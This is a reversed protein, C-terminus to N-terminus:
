LWSYRHRGSTLTQNQRKRIFKSIAGLSSACYDVKGRAIFLVVPNMLFEKILIRKQFKSFWLWICILQIYSQLSFRYERVNWVVIFIRWFLFFNNQSSIVINVMLVLSIISGTEGIVIITFTFVDSKKNRRLHSIASIITYGVFPFYLINHVQFIELVTTKHNDKEKSVDEACVYRYWKM